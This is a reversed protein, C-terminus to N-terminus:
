MGPLFLQMAAVAIATTLPITFNDDFRTSVLEAVAGAVAGAIALIIRSSWPLAHFAALSALAGITGAVVFTLTGELSRGTRLRTRGYRRGIFGAAPDALGLVVVGVEAARLPFFAALIVLATVYWTSSNVHHRERPHAVAGFLRMLRDNAAPSRRRVTEMTWAAIAISVSVAILWTRGPLLRILALSLAGSVIHFLSRTYNAPRAVSGHAPTEGGAPEEFAIDGLEVAQVDYAHKSL